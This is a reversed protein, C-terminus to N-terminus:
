DIGQGTGANDSNQRWTNLGSRAFNCTTRYNNKDIFSRVKGAEAEIDM